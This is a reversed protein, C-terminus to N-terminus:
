ELDISLEYELTSVAGYSPSESYSSVTAGDFTEAILEEMRARVAAKAEILTEEDQLSKGEPVDYSVSYSELLVFDNTDSSVGYIEIVNNETSFTSSSNAAKIYAFAPKEDVFWIDYDVGTGIGCEFGNCDFVFMEGLVTQRLIYGPISYLNDFSVAVLPLSNYTRHVLAKEIELGQDLMAQLTKRYEEYMSSDTNEEDSKVTLESGLKENLYGITNKRVSDDRFSILDINDYHKLLVNDMKEKMNNQATKIDDYSSDFESKEDLEVYEGKEFKYIVQMGTGKTSEADGFCRYVILNNAEDFLVDKKTAEGMYSEPDSLNLAKADGKYYYYIYQPLSYAYHDQTSVAVVPAGGQVPKTILAASFSAGKDLLGQLETQYAERWNDKSIANYVFFGGATVAAALIVCVCAKLVTKIDEPKIKKLVAKTAKVVRKYWPEPPPPPPSLWDNLAKRMEAASSFRKKGDFNCAKMVIESLAKDANRPAPLKEGTLKKKLAIEIEKASPRPSPYYPKCGDNLLEYLITGLSYIDAKQGYPEFKVIEPAMYPWSGAVTMVDQTMDLHRASGFDGLKYAGSESVFINQPKIDRHIIKDSQLMELANCIDIGLNAVERESLTKTKIYESFPTLLEMRILITWGFGDSDEIVKHDEYSVINTRGKFRTMLEIEKVMEEVASRNDNVDSVRIVKLAAFQERNGIYERKIKYVKGFAGRGIEKDGVIEWEPWTASLINKAFDM